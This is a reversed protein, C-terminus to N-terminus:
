IKDPITDSVFARSLSPHAPTAPPDPAPRGAAELVRAAEARVSLMSSGALATVQDVLDTDLGSEPIADHL